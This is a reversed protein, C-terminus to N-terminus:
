PSSVTKPTWRMTVPELQDDEPAWPLIRLEGGAAVATPDLRIGTVVGMVCQGPHDQAFRVEGATVLVAAGDGQTGKAELYLTQDGKRAEADYPNGHRTDTVVWGDAEYHASLLAQAHNEIAARAVADTVRGQSRGRGGKTPGPLERGAVHGRWLENLRRAAQPAVEVGSGLLYKWPVEPVNILLNATLLPEDIPVMFDWEVEVYNATGGGGDWHEDQDPEDITWGSAVIGRPEVGQTLLYVRDGVTMDTRTGTSWRGGVRAGAQVAELDSFWAAEPIQWRQSNYTLLFTRM